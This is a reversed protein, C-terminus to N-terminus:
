LDQCSKTVTQTIPWEEVVYEYVVNLYILCM